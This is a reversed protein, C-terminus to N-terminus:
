GIFMSSLGSTVLCICTSVDIVSINCPSFYKNKCKLGTNCKRSNKEAVPRAELHYESFKEESCDAAVGQAFVELRAQPWYSKVFSLAHSVCTIPAEAFFSLVKQPAGLLQELLSRGDVEGGEQLDVMDILQQAARRLEELEKQRQEKEEDLMKIQQLCDVFQQEMDTIVKQLREVDDTRRYLM